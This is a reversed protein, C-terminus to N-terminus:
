VSFLDVNNYQVYMMSIINVYWCIKVESIIIIFSDYFLLTYYIYMNIFILKQM